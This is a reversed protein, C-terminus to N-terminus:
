IRTATGGHAFIEAATQQQGSEDISLHVAPAPHEEIVFWSDICDICDPASVAAKARRPKKGSEDAIVQVDYCTSNCRNASRDSSSLPIDHLNGNFIVNGFGLPAGSQYTFINNLQWGGIVYDLPKPM